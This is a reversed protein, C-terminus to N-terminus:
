AMLLQSNDTSLTQKNQSKIAKRKREILSVTKDKLVVRQYQKIPCNEYPCVESHHNVYGKLIIASERRNERTDVINLYYFNKKQCLDGTDIRKETTMLLKLRNEQKTHVIICILPIGLFLIELAGTFMTGTLVQTFLLVINAWAFIASFLESLMQPTQNHYPRNLSYSIFCFISTACLVLTKFLAYKPQSFFTFFFVLV